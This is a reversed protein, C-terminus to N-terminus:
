FFVTPAPPDGVMEGRLNRLTQKSVHPGENNHHFIVDQRNALPRREEQVWAEEFPSFSNLDIKLSKVLAEM